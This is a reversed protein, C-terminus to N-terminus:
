NTPPHSGGRSRVRELIQQCESILQGSSASSNQARDIGDQAQEIGNSVRDASGAIRGASAEHEKNARIASEVQQGPSGAGGGYDHLNYGIYCGICASVLALLIYSAYGRLIDKVM